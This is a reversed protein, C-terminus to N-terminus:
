RDQRFSRCTTTSIRGSSQPATRTRYGDRPKYLRATSDVAAYSTCPRSTTSFGSRAGRPPSSWIRTSPGQHRHDPREAPEAPIAALAGGNDFSIYMGFETGAYLLGERDPDERVVRTPTDAPIGNTGDTLRKWRRATTTPRTSTHGTTASCIDIRRTTRPDRGILRRKWTSFAGARSWIRAAHCQDLTKGNDRTVYFPGDNAGPGSSVRKSRRSRSRTFRATSSKAPSTVRSRNAAPARVAIPIPPSIPLFREWTM